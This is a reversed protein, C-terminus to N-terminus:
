DYCNHIADNRTPVHFGIYGLTIERKCKHAQVYARM